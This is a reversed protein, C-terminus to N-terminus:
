LLLAYGIVDVLSGDPNHEVEKVKTIGLGMWSMFPQYRLFLLSEVNSFMIFKQINFGWEELKYFM